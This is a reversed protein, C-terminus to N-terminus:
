RHESQEDDADYHKEAGASKRLVTMAVRVKKEFMLRKPKSYAERNADRASHDIVMEPLPSPPDPQGDGGDRQDKTEDRMESHADVARAAPDPEARNTKLRRLNRFKGGYKEEGPPKGTVLVCGFM